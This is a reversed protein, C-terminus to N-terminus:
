LFSSRAPGPNLRGPGTEDPSAAPDRAHPQAPPPRRRPVAPILVAQDFDGTILHSLVGAVRGARMSLHRLPHLAEGRLVPTGPV